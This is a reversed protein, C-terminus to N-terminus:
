KLLQAAQKARAKIGSIENNLIRINNRLEEREKKLEEAELRFRNLAQQYRANRKKESELADVMIGAEALKIRTREQQETSGFETRYIITTGSIIPSYRVTMGDEGISIYSKVRKSVENFKKVVAEGLQIDLRFALIDIYTIADALEKAALEKFEGESIDGREFKKRINAYEGLEGMVAQYWQAPSWDSGDPKSHAPEGKANKFTPLRAINAVRLLDFTLM